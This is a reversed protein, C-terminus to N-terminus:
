FLHLWPCMAEPPSIYCCDQYHCIEDAASDPSIIIAHNSGQLHIYKHIHKISRLNAYFEVNLWWGLLMSLHPNYPIVHQNTFTINTQQGQATYTFGHQPQAYLPYKNMVTEPGYAKLFRNACRTIWVDKLLTSIHHSWQMCGWLSHPQHEASIWLLIHAHSWTGSVWHCICM